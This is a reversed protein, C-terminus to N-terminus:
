SEAPLATVAVTAVTGADQDVTRASVRLEYLVVAMLAM